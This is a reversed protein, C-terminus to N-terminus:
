MANGSQTLRGDIVRLMIAPHRSLPTREIRWNMMGQAAAVAANATEEAAPACVRDLRDARHAGLGHHRRLHRHHHRSDVSGASSTCIAGATGGGGSGVVITTWAALGSLVISRSGTSRSSDKESIREVLASLSPLEVM